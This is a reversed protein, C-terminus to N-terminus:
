VVEPLGADCVAEVHKAIFPHALAAEATLRQEPEARLLGHLLDALDACMWSPSGGATLEAWAARSARGPHAACCLLTVGLAYIDAAAGFPQEPDTTSVEPARFCDTYALGKASALPCALGWDGLRPLGQGDIFVNGPKLDGHLAGAAHLRALERLLAYAVTFVSADPLLQAQSYSDHGAAALYANM